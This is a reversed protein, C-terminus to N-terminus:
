RRAGSTEGAVDPMPERQDSPRAAALALGQEDILFPYENTCHTSGRYKVIRLREGQEGTVIATGGKGKLFHFLRRLESWIIGQDTCVIESRELHVFDLRFKNCVILEHLDFGPATANTILDEVHEEFFVFVGQEYREVAGRLLFEMALLTRGCGTGGCVLTPREAPLGGGTMENLVRILTACKRLAEIAPPGRKKSKIM